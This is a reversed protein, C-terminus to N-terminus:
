DINQALLIIFIIVQKPLIAFDEAVAGMVKMKSKSQYSQGAGVM